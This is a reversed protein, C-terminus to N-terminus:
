CIRAAATPYPLCRSQQSAPSILINVYTEGVSLHVLDHTRVESASRLINPRFLLCATEYKMAIAAIGTLSNRTLRVSVCGRDKYRLAVHIRLFQLTASATFV